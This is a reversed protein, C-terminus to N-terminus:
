KSSAVTNILSCPAVTSRFHSTLTINMYKSHNILDFTAQAMHSLLSLTLVMTALQGSLVLM